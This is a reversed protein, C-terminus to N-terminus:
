LQARVMTMEGWWHAVEHLVEGPNGPRAREVGELVRNLENDVYMSRCMIQGM